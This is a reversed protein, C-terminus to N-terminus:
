APEIATFALVNVEANARAALQVSFAYSVKRSLLPLSIEDLNVALASKTPSPCPLPNICTDFIFVCWVTSRTGARGGSAMLLTYPNNRDIKCLIRRRYAIAIATNVIVIMM